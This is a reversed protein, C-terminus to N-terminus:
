TLIDDGKKEGRTLLNSLASKLRSWDEVVALVTFSGAKAAGARIHTPIIPVHAAVVRHTSSCPFEM